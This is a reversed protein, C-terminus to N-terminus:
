NAQIVSVSATPTVAAMARDLTTAFTDRGNGALWAQQAALLCSFASGVIARIRPDDQAHPTGADAAQEDLIAAATDQLTQIKHLYRAHLAPTSFVVEHIRTAMEQRGPTDVHPVLLDFMRRLSSWVPEDPPRTRLSQALAEAIGDFKGVVLDEKTPFYRFVSRASMGVEHAIDDITTADYGRSVFLREAAETIEARVARRTRERLGPHHETTMGGAYALSVCIDSVSM